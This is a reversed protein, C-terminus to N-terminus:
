QPVEARLREIHSNIPGVGLDGILPFVTNFRVGLFQHRYEKSRFYAELDTVRGHDEVMMGQAFQSFANSQGNWFNTSDSRVAYGLSRSEKALKAKAATLLATDVIYSDIAYWTGEVKVETYSHSLAPPLL